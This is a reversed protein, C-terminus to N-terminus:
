RNQTCYDWRTDTYYDRRTQTIVKGTTLTIIEGPRLRIIEGPRLTIHLRQPQIQTADATDGAAKNSLPRDEKVQLKSTPFELATPPACGAM